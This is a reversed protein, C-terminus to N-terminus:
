ECLHKRVEARSLGRSGTGDRTLTGDVEELTLLRPLSRCDCGPLSEPFSISIIAVREAAGVGGPAEALWAIRSFVVDCALGAVNLGIHIELGRRSRASSWTWDAQGCVVDSSDDVDLVIRVLRCRNGTTGLSTRCSLASHNGDVGCNGLSVVPGSAWDILPDM